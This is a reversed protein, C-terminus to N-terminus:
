RSRGTASAMRRTWRSSEVDAELAEGVADEDPEELHRVEAGAAELAEGTEDTLDGKGILLVHTV